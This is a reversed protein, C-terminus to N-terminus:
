RGYAAFEDLLVPLPGPTLPGAFLFGQGSDCQERQLREALRVTEAVAEPRRAGERGVAGVAM